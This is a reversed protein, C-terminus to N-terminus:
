VQSGSHRRRVVVAGAGVAALLGVGLAIDTTNVGQSTSGVGTRVPGDPVRADPCLRAAYSSAIDAQGRLAELNDQEAQGPHGGNKVQEKYDTLAAQYSSEAKDAASVAADCAAPVHPRVTAAHAAPAALVIGVGLVATGLLTNISRM